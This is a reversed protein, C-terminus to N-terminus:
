QTHENLFDALRTFLDIRYKEPGIDHEAHEYQIFEVPKNNKALADYMIKSQTFPVNVDEQAHVLLLPAPIEGVRKLPSGADGVEKAGIFERMYKGGIYVLKDHSFKLPDSIGAISVICKYSSSSEIASMMAAYGGYSWGLICIKNPDAIGEAILYKTGDNIDNIALKWDRFAGSGHWATGYGDSGRYNSQLVAYGNAALFQVLSDFGWIDRSSPGGHPLIVAPLGTQKGNNPLTLFAPVSVKDRAPYSVEKMLALKQDKLKSSISAIRALKFNQSDYRYYVRPEIDSSVGVIYYRRNWDEQLIDVNHDPFLPTIAEHIKKIDKDFFYQHIKNDIYIAAIVRDYKGITRVGSVDVSDHAFVLHSAQGHDLDMSFLATRGDHLDLYFLEDPNEGFGVPTYVDGLNTAQADHLLKWFAKKSKPDRVYLRKYDDTISIDVYLRPVGHGDTIWADANKEITILDTFKGTYFDLTAVRSGSGGWLLPSYQILVHYQDDPLKDILGGALKLMNKGDYNVGVMMAKHSYNGDESYRKSLFCLLRVNNAWECGSININPDHDPSSLIIGSFKNTTLDLTRVFEFGDTHYQIFALKDGEPSLRLSLFDPQSGFAVALSSTKLEGDEAKCASIMYVLCAFAFWFRKM